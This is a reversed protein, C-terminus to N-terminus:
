ASREAAGRGLMDVDAMTFQLSSEDVGYADPAVVEM